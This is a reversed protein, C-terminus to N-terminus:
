LELLANTSELVREAVKLNKKADEIAEDIIKNSEGTINLIEAMAIILMSLRKVKRAWVKAEYRMERSGDSKGIWKDMEVVSINSFMAISVILLRLNAIDLKMNVIM